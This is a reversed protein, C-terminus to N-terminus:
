APKKSKLISLIFTDEVKNSEADHYHFEEIKRKRKTDSIGRKIKAQYEEFSRCYYHNLQINSTSNESFSDDIPLFHENVCHKGSIYQFCHSKFASKVFKPQVISKIHRNPYFGTESRRTFSELQSYVPKHQHGNSGFILWSVGLGGYEEYDTLFEPLSHGSTKPVIFEDIDIFAIWRSSAGYHRLCHGYAKVHQNKGPFDIVTTFRDFGLQAITEKVPVRSGNDYIFFHEVGILRHYNIWEEIYDNEDKVIGCISLYFSSEKPGAPAKKTFVSLLFNRFSM